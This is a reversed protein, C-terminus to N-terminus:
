PGGATDRATASTTAASSDPTTTRAAAHASGAAKARRALTEMHAEPPPALRGLLVDGRAKLDGHADAALEGLDSRGLLGRAKGILGEATELGLDAAGALLALLDRGRQPGRTHDGSGTDDM